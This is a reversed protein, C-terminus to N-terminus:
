CSFVRQVLEVHELHHMANTVTHSFIFKVFQLMSPARSFSCLLTQFSIVMLSCAFTLFLLIMAAFPGPHDEDNAHHCVMLCLCVYWSGKPGFWLPTKRKSNATLVYHPGSGDEIISKGYIYIYISIYITKQTPEGPLTLFCVQPKQLISPRVEMVCTKRRVTLFHILRRARWAFWRLKTRHQQVSM